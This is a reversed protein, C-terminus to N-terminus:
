WRLQMEMRFKLSLEHIVQVILSVVLVEYSSVRRVNHICNRATDKINLHNM